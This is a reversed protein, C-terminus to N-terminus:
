VVCVASWLLLGYSQLKTWARHVDHVTASASSRGLCTLDALIHHWLLRCQAPQTTLQGICHCVALSAPVPVAPSASGDLLHRMVCAALVLVDHTQADVGLHARFYVQLLTPSRCAGACLVRMCRACVLSNAPSGLAAHVAYVTKLSRVLRCRGVPLAHEPQALAICRAGAVVAPDMDALSAAAAKFPMACCCGARLVRVTILPRCVRAHSHPPSRGNVQISGRTFAADTWRVPDHRMPRTHRM